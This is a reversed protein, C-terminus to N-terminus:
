FKNSKIFCFEARNVNAFVCCATICAFKVLSTICDDQACSKLRCEVRKQLRISSLLFKLDYCFNRWDYRSNVNEYLNDVRVRRPPPVPGGPIEFDSTMSSISETSRGNSLRNNPAPPPPNQPRKLLLKDM